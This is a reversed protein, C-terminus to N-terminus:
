FIEFAIEPLPDKVCDVTSIDATVSMFTQDGANLNVFSPPGEEQVCVAEAEMVLGDMLINPQGVGSLALLGIIQQVLPTQVSAQVAGEMTYANDHIYIGSPFPNYNPDEPPDQFILLSTIVVNAFTNNVFSNGFVEVNKTSLVMLGTGTPVSAVINGEPAFNARENDHVNNNFVRTNAGTKTLGPLDFVLIGGTNDFAENDFVDANTTNEIEIGAVNGEAVCNKVIVQDSQGVYIGADSAGFAYCNDIYVETCLVPYLGYAGNDISPEGSWITNVNVFSVKNCDRAKLADGKSDQITIDEFRISNSNSVLVADGGATQGSFDLFTKDRGAGRIIVRSKGDMSLTNTFSFTGEGFVIIKDETVEIFALQAEDAATESAAIRIENEPVPEPELEPEPEPTVVVEPVIVDDDDDGCSSITFVSFLLISVWLTNIIIKKM